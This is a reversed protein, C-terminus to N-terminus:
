RNSIAFDPLWVISPPLVLHEIGGFSAPSWQLFDDYWEQYYILVISYTLVTM